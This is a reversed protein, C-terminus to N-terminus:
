LSTIEIIKNPSKHGKVIQISSKTVQFHEALLEIVILNAKGKEPPQNCKIKLIDGEFGVVEQSSSKTIVKVKIIM